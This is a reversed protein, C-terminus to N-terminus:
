NKEKGAFSSLVESFNRIIEENTFGCITAYKEDFTIDYMQNLGSYVSTNTFRSVGTMMGFQINDDMEKLSSFVAKLLDKNKDYTEKHHIYNILPNDYEDILIVVRKGTNVHINRILYRFRVSIDAYAKKIGYEKEWSELQEEISQKLSNPNSKM